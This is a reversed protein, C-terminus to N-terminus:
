IEVLIENRRLFGPVAPNNYQAVIYNSKPEINHKQLLDKMERIKELALKEKVRGKFRLAAMKEEKVEEFKIRNDEPEPLTELTYKSPMVFSIRHINGTAEETVPTTMKIKESDKLTEETVPATMPIKESGKREEEVPVTMEIKSRKRNGGFIYNALIRFGIGMADDFSAEVDVHAMVHAVYRRIEFDGEKKEVEYALTETM